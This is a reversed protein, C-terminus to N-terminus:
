EYKVIFDGNMYSRLKFLIMIILVSCAVLKVLWGCLRSVWGVVWSVLLCIFLCVFQGVCCDVFWGVLWGVLRIKLFYLKETNLRM